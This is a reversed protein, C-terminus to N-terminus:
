EGESGDMRTMFNHFSIGGNKKELTEYLIHEDQLVYICICIYISVLHIRSKCGNELSTKHASKEDAGEKKKSKKYQGHWKM